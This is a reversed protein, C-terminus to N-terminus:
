GLRRVLLLGCGMGKASGIGNFLTHVFAEADTVRLEGRLEVTTLQLERSRREGHQIPANAHCSLLEFGLRAARQTLWHGCAQEALAALSPKDAGTWDAWRQLGREALLKKKAEMVVDHRKSKGDDRGHRVTPNARLEFALRDGAELEPAYPRSDVQWATDPSQPARASVAYFGPLGDATEFRRFLFDRPSGEPAQFCRWLWQHEAYPSGLQQRAAERERGPKPTIRSFHM